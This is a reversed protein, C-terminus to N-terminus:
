SRLLLEEEQHTEAGDILRTALVLDGDRAVHLGDRLDLELVVMWILSKRETTEARHEIVDILWRPSEPAEKLGSM